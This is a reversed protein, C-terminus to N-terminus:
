LILLHYNLFLSDGANEYDYYLFRHDIISQLLNLIFIYYYPIVCM